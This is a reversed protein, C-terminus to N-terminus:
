FQRRLVRPSETKGSSGDGWCTVGSDDIACTHFYGAAIKTPNVLNTPVNTQGFQNRGWCDLGNDDIACTHHFGAAIEYASAENVGVALLLISVLSLTSIVLGLTVRRFSKPDNSVSVNGPVGAGTRTSGEVGGRGGRSRLRRIGGTM